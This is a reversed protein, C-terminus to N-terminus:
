RNGFTMWHSRRWLSQNTTTAWAFRVLGTSAEPAPTDPPLSVIEARGHMDARKFAETWKTMQFLKAYLRAIRITGEFVKQLPLLYNWPPACTPKPDDKVSGFNHKKLFRSRRNDKDNSWGDDMMSCMEMAVDLIELM